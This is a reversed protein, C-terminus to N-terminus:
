VECKELIHEIAIKQNETIHLKFLITNKVDDIFVWCWDNDWNELIKDCIDVYKLWECKACM